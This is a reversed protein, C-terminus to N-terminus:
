AEGRPGPYQELPILDLQIGGDGPYPEHHDVKNTAIEEPIGEPFASCILANQRERDLHTCATCQSHASLAM